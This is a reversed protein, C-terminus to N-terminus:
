IMKKKLNKIVINVIICLKTFFKLNFNYSWSREAIPISSNYALRWLNLDKDVILELAHCALTPKTPTLGVIMETYVLPGFEISPL